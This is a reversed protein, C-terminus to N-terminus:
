LITKWYFNICVAYILHIQTLLFVFIYHKIKGYPTEKMIMKSELDNKAKKADEPSLTVDASTSSTPSFELQISCDNGTWGNDCFCHNLNSCTQYDFLVNQLLLKM